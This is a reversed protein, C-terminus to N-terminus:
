PQFKVSPPTSLQEREGDTVQWFTGPTFQFFRAIIVAPFQEIATNYEGTANNMFRRSAAIKNEIDSLEEQLKLFNQNAKLDPYNESVAYLNALAASLQNEAAVRDAGSAAKLANARANTVNELVQKEHGMYGRVTEVLNPILDARQKLQVDIDAFANRCSQRLAVLRNYIAIAFFAIAALLGIVYWM